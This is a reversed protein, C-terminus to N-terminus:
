LIGADAVVAYEVAVILQDAVVLAFLAYGVGFLYLGFARDHVAPVLVHFVDELQFHVRHGACLGLQFLHEPQVSNGQNESDYSVFAARREEAPLRQKKSSCNQLAFVAM